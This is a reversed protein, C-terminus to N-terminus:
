EQWNHPPLVEDETYSIGQEEAEVLKMREVTSNGDEGEGSVEIEMVAKYIETSLDSWTSGFYGSNEALAAAREETDLWVWIPEGDYEGIQVMDPPHQNNQPLDTGDPLRMIEDTTGDGLLQSALSGQFIIQQAM